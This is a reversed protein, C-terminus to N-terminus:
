VKFTDDVSIHLSGGNRKVLTVTRYDHASLLTAIEMATLEQRDGQKSAHVTWKKGDSKEITIKTYRGTRIIRLIERERDTLTGANEELDEVFADALSYNGVRTSMGVQQLLENFVNNLNVALTAQTEDSRYIETIPSASFCAYGSRSLLFMTEIDILMLCIVDDAATRESTTPKGNESTEFFLKYVPKLRENELGFLKLEAAVKFYLLEKLSYRHWQRPNKRQDEILDSKSMENLQRYSLITDAPRYRKRNLVSVIPIEKQVRAIHELHHDACLLM